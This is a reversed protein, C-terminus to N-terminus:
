RFRGGGTESSPPSWNGPLWANIAQEREEAQGSALTKAAEADGLLNEYASMLDADNILDVKHFYKVEALVPLLNVPTSTAVKSVRAKAQDPQLSPM